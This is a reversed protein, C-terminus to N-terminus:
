EEKKSLFVEKLCRVYQGEITNWMKTIGFRQLLSGKEHGLARVKRAIVESRCSCPAKCKPCVEGQNWTFALSSWTAGCNM